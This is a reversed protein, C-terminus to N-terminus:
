RKKRAFLCHRSTGRRPSDAPSDMAVSLKFSIFLHSMHCELHKYANVCIQKVTQLHNEQPLRSLDIKKSKRAGFVCAMLDLRSRKDAQDLAKGM